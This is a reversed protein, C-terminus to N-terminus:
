IAAECLCTQWVGGEYEADGCPLDVDAVVNQLRHATRHNIAAFLGDALYLTWYTRRWSEQLLPDDEGNAQAFGQRHMQQDLASNIAKDLVSDALEYEDSCHLAIAFLLLAQVFFGNSPSLGNCIIQDHAIRGLEESPGDPQYHSGIYELVLLLHTLSEPNTQLRTSLKWRPLLVPHANHFNDYYLDLLSTQVPLGQGQQTVTSLVDRSGSFAREFRLIETSSAFDQLCDPVTEAITTALPGRLPEDPVTLVKTSQRRKGPGGRRSKSYFCQREDLRCRTCQAKADCKLHRSRCPICALSARSHRRRLTHPHHVAQQAEMIMPATDLLGEPVAVHDLGFGTSPLLFGPGNVAAADDM